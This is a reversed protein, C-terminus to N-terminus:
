SIRVGSNEGEIRVKVVVKVMAETGAMPAHVDEPFFVAFHGEPVPVWITPRDSYLEYDKAKDYGLGKMGPESHMWGMLDHGEAMYQIDIYRRHTEFKAVELGRGKERMVNVYLRDGAIDTRGTPLKSIVQTKLWAFAEAFSPHLSDYRASNDLQDLIM